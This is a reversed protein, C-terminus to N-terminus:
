TLAMRRIHTGIFVGEDQFVLVLTLALLLMVCALVLSGAELRRQTKHRSLWTMSVVGLVPLGTIQNLERGDVFVPKLQHLLYAVGAGALLAAFVVIALLRPRDPAVPELAAVPPDIIQFNVGEWGIRSSRIREQELRGRLENYVSNVQDYDRTLEALEAEIEPIEDVRTKLEAVRRRYEAVQGQLSSVEVSAENLAIQVQQYVPNDSLAAGEIGGARGLAEYEARRREYLQDLQARVGVVDPHRDTFRLLLEQLLNELEVIRSELENRPTTISGESAKAGGALYPREGQLQVRLANRREVAVRLTAELREMEQMLEQMREFYGGTEGPLLGVNRKKFEAIAAEREQLQLRYDAISKELFRVTEEAGSSQGSVVDERFTELLNDVVALAKSRERDQYTILYIGDATNKRTTASEIKITNRLSELLEEKEKPTRARLDLDTERTVRALVPRSLMAQRVLDIESAEDSEIIVGGMVEDLRTTTNVYFRAEAAYEDPLLFVGGWGLLCLAWAISMAWWRFRWAGRIETILQQFLERM